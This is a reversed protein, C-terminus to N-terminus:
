FTLTLSTTLITDLSEKRERVSGVLIEFGGSEVTEFFEDGSGPIDDPDVLQVRGALDVDELAPFSNYNSQLSVKLFLRESMPVTIAHTMSSTYDSLDSLQINFTWDNSYVVTKGLRNEYLWNYRFGAFSEEKEPDPVRENRQTWSFSYGNEFKLDERNWWVHGVGAFLVTRGVLGADVDREWSAGAHWSMTGPHFRPTRSASREYRAEAYYREIDPETDPDVLTSTVEPPDAGVVWSFGPDVMRFRDDATESVLGDLRLRLSARESRWRLLNNLRLKQTESNGDTVTLGLDTTNDWGTESETDKEPEHASAPSLGQLVLCCVVGVLLRRGAYRARM